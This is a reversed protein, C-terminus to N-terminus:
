KALLNAQLWNVGLERALNTLQKDHAQPWTIKSEKKARFDKDEPRM